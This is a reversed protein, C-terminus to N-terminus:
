APPWDAEESNESAQRVEIDAGKATKTFIIILGNSDAVVKQLPRLANLLPMVKPLQMPNSSVGRMTGQVDRLLPVAQLVGVCLNFLGDALQRKKTPDLSAVRASLDNSKALQTATASESELLNAIGARQENTNTLAGIAEREAKVAAAAADSRFTDNIRALARLVLASLAASRKVLNDVQLDFNADSAAPLKTGAGGGVGRDPGDIQAFGSGSAFGIIAIFILRRLPV